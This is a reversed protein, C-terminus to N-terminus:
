ALVTPDEAKTVRLVEELSTQGSLAKSLGDEWLTKMGSRRAAERIQDVSAHATIMGRLADSMTLLEFVAMRGQYGM